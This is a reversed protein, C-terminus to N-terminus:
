TKKERKRKYREKEEASMSQYKERTVKQYLKSSSDWYERSKNEKKDSKSSSLHPHLHPHQQTASVIEMSQEMTMFFSKM